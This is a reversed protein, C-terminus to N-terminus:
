LLGRHRCDHDDLDPGPEVALPGVTFGHPQNLFMQLCSSALQGTSTCHVQVCLLPTRTVGPRCSPRCSYSKMVQRKMTALTPRYEALCCQHYIFIVLQNLVKSDCKSNTFLTNQTQIFEALHLLMASIFIQIEKMGCRSLTGVHLTM